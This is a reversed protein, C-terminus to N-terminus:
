YLDFNTNPYLKSKAAPTGGAGHFTDEGVLDGIAAFARIFEIRNGVGTEDIVARIGPSIRELRELGVGGRQKTKEFDTGLEEMAAKGWDEIQQIRANEAATVAKQMWKMGYEAAKNAQENSFGLEKALGAFENAATEDYQMGEPVIDHFDYTVEGAGAAAGAANGLITGKAQQAGEPNETGTGETGQAGAEPEGTGAGADTGTGADGAPLGGEGEGAFLQLDFRFKNM